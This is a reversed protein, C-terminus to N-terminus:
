SLARLSAALEARNACCRKEMAKNLHTRVTSISIRLIRGIDQDRCGRAVLHVVEQERPTLGAYRCSQRSLARGLHPRLAELLTVQAEAFPGHDRSRWLRFDGLDEAGDFLFINMGFHLGDRQLFGNWFESAELAKRDIVEDVSAARGAARMRMTIPDRFQFYGDHDRGATEYMNHYLGDESIRKRNNWRYSAAFDAEVLAIIQPFVAERINQPGDFTELTRVIEGFKQLQHMQISM